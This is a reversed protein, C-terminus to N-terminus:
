LEEPEVCLRLKMKQKNTFHFFFFVNWFLFLAAHTGTVIRNPTENKKYEMKYM